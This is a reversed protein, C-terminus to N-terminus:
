LLALGEGTLDTVPSHRGSAALLLSVAPGSVQAGFGVEVDADTATLRVSKMLEKCGGFAAPTRAQLRLAREVAVAPYHRTIGLPRRIDQGHVIEEVLRTDPSAPPMSTRQAVEQLRALTQDPGEARERDVGRQNLRDFDFRARVLSALFGLRTTRASDVLHAAVDHVTWDACLSPSEWQEPRLITLDEILAAREAHVMPWIENM